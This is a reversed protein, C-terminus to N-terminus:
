PRRRGHGALLLLVGFWIPMRKWHTPREIACHRRRAQEANELHDRMNEKGLEFLQTANNMTM